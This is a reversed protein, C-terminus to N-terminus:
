SAGYLMGLEELWERPIERGARVYRTMAELIDVARAEDHRERPLLGVPPKETDLCARPKAPPPEPVPTWRPAERAEHPRPKVGEAFGLDGRTPDASRLRALVEERPEPTLKIDAGLAGYEGRAEPNKAKWHLANPVGGATCTQCVTTNPPVDRFACTECSKETM